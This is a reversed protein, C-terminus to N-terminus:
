LRYWQVTFNHEIFDANYECVPGFKSICLHWRSTAGHVKGNPKMLPETDVKTSIPCSVFLETEHLSHM